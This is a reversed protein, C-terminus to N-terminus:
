MTIQFTVAANCVGSMLTVFAIELMMMMPHM